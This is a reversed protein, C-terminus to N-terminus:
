CNFLNYVYRLMYLMAWTLTTSTTESGAPFLDFLTNLLNLKGKEAYFSSEPNETKEIEILVKDIFDRPENVDITEEHEKICERMIAMLDKMLELSEDQKVIAPFWKILRPFSIWLASDINGVREFWSTLKKQIDTLKKDDYDYRKGTTVRWLANVVPLNFLNICDLPVGPFKKIHKVFEEIEAKILEEM